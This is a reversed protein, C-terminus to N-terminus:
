NLPNSGSDTDQVKLFELEAIRTDLVDKTIVQQEALWKFKNIENEIDNDANIAGYLKLLQAKRRKNLENLIEDHQKDQIIFVNGAETSLVTYKIKSFQAWIICGVGLVLWFGKGALSGDNVIAFGLQLVGVACWLYGVNRLWENQQISISSKVPLDIYNIDSDGSGTKDQYSFNFKEESFTISHKVSGKKQTMEM